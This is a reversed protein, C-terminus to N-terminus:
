AAANIRHGHLPPVGFGVRDSPAPARALSPLPRAVARALAAPRPRQAFSQRGRRPCHQGRSRSPARRPRPAEPGDPTPPARRAAASPVRQPANLKKTRCPDFLPPGRQGSGGYRTAGRLASDRATLARLAGSDGIRRVSPDGMQRQRDLTAVEHRQHAVRRTPERLDRDDHPEAPLTLHALALVDGPILDVLDLEQAAVVVQRPQPPLRV